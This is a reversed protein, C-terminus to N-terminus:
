PAQPEPARNRNRSVYSSATEIDFSEFRQMRGWSTIVVPVDITAWPFAIVKFNKADDMVKQIEGKLESCEESELLNCNYWFIVYGHELNHVLYGVPYPGIEEVDIEDYFGADLQSAYHPGSTPPDSYYTGPNGDIPVHDVSAMVPVEEGEAPRVSPWALLAIIVLVVAALGVWLINSKFSQRNRRRRLNERRSKGGM